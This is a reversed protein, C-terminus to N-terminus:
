DIDQSKNVCSQQYSLSDLFVRLASRSFHMEKLIILNNICAKSLKILM